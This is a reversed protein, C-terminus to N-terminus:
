EKLLDLATKLDELVASLEEPSLKNDETNNAESETKDVSKPADNAENIVNLMHKTLRGFQGRSHGKRDETSLELLVDSMSLIEYEDDWAEVLERDTKDRPSSVAFFADDGWKDSWYELPPVFTAEKGEVTEGANPHPVEVLEGDVIDLAIADEDVDVEWNCFVAFLTQEIENNSIVGLKRVWAKGDRRVKKTKVPETNQALGKVTLRLAEQNAPVPVLSWELLEWETFDYGGAENEEWELPNFGVSATRILGQEWLAKIVHMPDSENAPERLAFDAMIGRESIELNLTEGVTAWPDRYNHGWQVVPNKMYNDIKVGSPLVRDRDRDVAGTNILIRGGNESKEVLEVDVNKRKMSKGEEHDEWIGYCIAAAQETTTTEDEELVFEICRSIFDGQSEGSEPKPLPM